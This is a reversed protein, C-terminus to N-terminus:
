NTSFLDLGKYDAEAKFIRRAGQPQGSSTNSDRTGMRAGRAAAADDLALFALSGATHHKSVQM